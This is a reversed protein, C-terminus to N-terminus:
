GSSAPPKGGKEPGGQWVVNPDPEGAKKEPGGQWVVDPGPQQSDASGKGSTQGTNSEGM